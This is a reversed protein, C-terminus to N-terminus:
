VCTHSRGPGQLSPLAVQSEAQSSIFPADTIPYLLATLCHLKRTDEWLGCGHEMAVPLDCSSGQPLAGAVGTLLASPLPAYGMLASPDPGCGTRSVGQSLTPCCVPGLSSPHGHSQGTQGGSQLRDGKKCLDSILGWSLSAERQWGWWGM